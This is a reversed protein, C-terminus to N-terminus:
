SGNYPRACLLHESFSNGLNGSGGRGQSLSDPTVLDPHAQPPSGLAPISSVSLGEGHHGSGLPPPGGGVEQPVPWM